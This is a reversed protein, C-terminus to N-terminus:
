FFYAVRVAWHRQRASYDDLLKTKLSYTMGWTYSATVQWKKFIEAGIGATLGLDGGAWKIADCKSHGALISFEPGGFILPALTDEFGNLRTWKFRLHLPITINHLYLKENGYGESAWIKKEGLNVQGGLQNYMLGFSLGFGIGPFMLEGEVGAQAGVMSSVGVLDQKFVLNNINVGAVVSRRFQANSSLPLLLAAMLIITSVLKRKM